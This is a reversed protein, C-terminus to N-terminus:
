RQGSADMGPIRYPDYLALKAIGVALGMYLTGELPVWPGVIGVSGALLPGTGEHVRADVRVGIFEVIIGM